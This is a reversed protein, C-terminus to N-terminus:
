CFVRVKQAIDLSDVCLKFKKRLGHVTVSQGGVRISVCNWDVRM